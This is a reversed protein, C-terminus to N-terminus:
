CGIWRAAEVTRRRKVNGYSCKATRPEECSVIFGELTELGEKRVVTGAACVYILQPETRLREVLIMDSEVSEATLGSGVEDSYRWGM